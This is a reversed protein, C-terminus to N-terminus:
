PGSDGNGMGSDVMATTVVLLSTVLDTRISFMESHYRLTAFTVQPLLHYHGSPFIFQVQDLLKGNAFSLRLALCHLRSHRSLDAIFINNEDSVQTAM